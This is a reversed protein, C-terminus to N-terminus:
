LARIRIPVVEADIKVLTRVGGAGGTRVAVPRLWLVARPPRVIAVGRVAAQAYVLVPSCTAVKGISDLARAVHALVGAHYSSM